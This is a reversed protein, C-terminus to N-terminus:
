DIKLSFDFSRVSHTIAGVSIFDVGSASAAPITERTMNGSAEVKARGAIRLVQERMADAPMNDLMIIDAGAALASAVEDGNRCEVEVAFRTGWRERVRRVAAEVSGAADVHNDKILAMDYLGQRHNRGGGVTVAYKSLARWGPLTKRTDLIVARGSERALSALARTATAIGSLFSIFNLSIREASLLSLASGRVAAVRDGRGLDEGDRLFFSVRVDPDVAHFVATFVEGGALVGVDKSWLTASREGEPIVAQSTIDGLEGLDERLALQVLPLYDSERM